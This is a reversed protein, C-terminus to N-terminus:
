VVTSPAERVKRVKLIQCPGCFPAVRLFAAHLLGGSDHSYRHDVYEFGLVELLTLLSAPTWAYIHRNWEVDQIYILSTLRRKRGLLPRLANAVEQGFHTKMEHLAYPNPTTVILAGGPKLVRNIERVAAACGELHEIVEQFTVCDQSGDPLDLAYASMRRFKVALDPYLFQALRVHEDTYDVGLAERKPDSALLEGVFRGAYCGVDVIRQGEVMELCQRMRDSLPRSFMTRCEAGSRQRGDIFFTPSTESNSM